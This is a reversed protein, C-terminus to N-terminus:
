GACRSRGHAQILRRARPRLDRRGEAQLERFNRRGQWAGRRHGQQLTADRAITRRKDDLSPSIRSADYGKRTGIFETTYTVGPEADIEISLSDKERRVDSLTVGSSAYFDGAEMAAILAGVELKAARVMVWGRGPHSLKKPENHYNHSDDTALGFMPEKGLVALRETLLIDWM